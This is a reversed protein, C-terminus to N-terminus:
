FELSFDGLVLVTNNCGEIKSIFYRNKIILYWFDGLALVM